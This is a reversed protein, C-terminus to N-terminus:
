YKASFIIKSDSGECRKTANNESLLNAITLEANIKSEFFYVNDNYIWAFKYITTEFPNFLESNNKLKFYNTTQFVYISDKLLQLHLKADLTDKVRIVANNEFSQNTKFFTLKSEINTKFEKSIDYNLSDYYLNLEKSSTLSSAFNDSYYQKLEVCNFPLITEEEFNGPRKNHLLNLISNSNTKLIGNANIKYPKFSFSVALTNNLILKPLKIQNKGNNINQPNIYIGLASNRDLTNKYM